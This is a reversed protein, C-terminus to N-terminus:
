TLSLGRGHPLCFFFSVLMRVLATSYPLGLDKMFFSIAQIQFICSCDSIVLPERASVSDLVGACHTAALSCSNCNWWVGLVCFSISLNSQLPCLVLMLHLMLMKKEVGTFSFKM